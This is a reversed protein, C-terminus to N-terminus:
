FRIETAQINGSREFASTWGPSAVVKRMLDHLYDAVLRVRSLLERDRYTLWITPDTGDAEVCRYNPMAIQLTGEALHLDTMVRAIRVIGLGLKAFNLMAPYSNAEVKAEVAQAVRTGDQARFHWVDRDNHTHVICDHQELEAPSSPIGNRAFYEPSACIVRQYSHLPRGILSGGPSTGAHIALDCESKLLRVPDDTMTVSFTLGAHRKRFHQLVSPLLLHGMFDNSAIRVHGALAGQEFALEDALQDYRMIIGRAKEEFLRGAETLTLSRTSRHVLRVDFEQEIRVLRRSAVSPLIGIARAGGAISGTDAIAVFLKLLAIETLHSEEATGVSSQSPAPVCRSNMM